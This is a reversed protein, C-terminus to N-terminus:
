TFVSEVDATLQVGDSRVTIAVSVVATCLHLLRRTFLGALRTLDAASSRTCQCRATGATSKRVYAAFSPAFFQESLGERMVKPRRASGTV